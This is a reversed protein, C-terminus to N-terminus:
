HWTPPIRLPDAREVRDTDDADTVEELQRMTAIYHPAEPRLSVARAATANDTLSSEGPAYGALRETRAFAEDSLRDWGQLDAAEEPWEQITELWRLNEKLWVPIGAARAQDILGQVWEPKPPTAGPGTMAGIILWDITPADTDLLRIPGMLPEASLFRVGAEVRSLEALAKDATDQDTVTAGVWEYGEFRWDKLNEPYKTLFQYTHWPAREAADLVAGIWDDNIWPGFLDAVSCVFVKSPAKVKAPEALRKEHLTPEFSMGFREYTRRAYCYPCGRLCGTVPSWTYDTWSIGKPGQKNM